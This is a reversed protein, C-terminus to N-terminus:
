VAGSFAPELLDRKTTVAERHDEAKEPKKDATSGVKQTYAIRAEEQEKQPTKAIDAIKANVQPQVAPAISPASAPAPTVNTKKAEAEKAEKEREKKGFLEKFMLTLYQTAATTSAGTFETAALRVMKNAQFVEATMTQGQPTRRLAAPDWNGGVENVGGKIFRALWFTGQTVRGRGLFDEHNKVFDPAVQKTIFRDAERLGIISAIVTAIGVARAGWVQLFSKGALESDLKKYIEEREALEGPTPEGKGRWKRWSDSVGDLWRVMKPKIRRNEFFQTILTTLHGGFSLFMVDTFIAAAEWRGASNRKGSAPDTIKGADDRDYKVAFIKGAANVEFWDVFKYFNMKEGFTKEGWKGWDGGLTVKFEKGNPNTLKDPHDDPLKLRQNIEYNTKDHAFWMSLAMNGVWNIGGHVIKDFLWWGRTRVKNTKIPVKLHEPLDIEQEINTSAVM